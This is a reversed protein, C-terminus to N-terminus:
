LITCHKKIIPHQIVLLIDEDNLYEDVLDIPSHISYKEIKSRLKLTRNIYKQITEVFSRSQIYM